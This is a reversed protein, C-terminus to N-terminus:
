GTRRQWGGGATFTEGFPGPLASAPEHPLEPHTRHLLAPGALLLGPGGTCPRLAGAAAKGLTSLTAAQGPGLANEILAVPTGPGAGHAVLRGAIEAARRAGMYVALTGGDQALTRWTNEAEPLHHGELLTIRRAVGRYTLPIGAAAAGAQLASVGPIVEFPVGAAQLAEAEEGGRGFILPDGGKLRVVRWGRGALEVMLRNIAEQPMGERGCRKGVPCCQAHPPFLAQFGPDLLEDFLVAQARALAQLGRLTLLDPSGPGAGVLSVFGAAAM